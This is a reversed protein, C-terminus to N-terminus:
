KYVDHCCKKCPTYKQLIDATFEVKIADKMGSCRSDIHYLTGTKSLWVYYHNKIDVHLISSLFTVDEPYNRCHDSVSYNLTESLHRMPSTYIFQDLSFLLASLGTLNEHNRIICPSNYNYIRGGHAALNRYDLCLSLCDRLLCRNAVPDDTLNKNSLMRRVVEDQLTGPLFHVLNVITSFYAGKFLIWPPVVGHVQRYHAIPDKDSELSRRLRSLTADLSFHPNRKRVDRYNRFQLYEDPEIGFSSGIVDAVVSKLHEELDLLSSIVGNRLNKDFVFLSFVQEFNVNSRFVKNDNEIITYPDRYGKIIDSYGYILLCNSAFIEDNIILHEDKMRQIQQEVTTYEM